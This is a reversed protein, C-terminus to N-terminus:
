KYRRRVLNIFQQAREVKTGQNWNYVTILNRMMYDKAQEFGGINNLQILANNFAHQDDSFLEKIMSIKDNLGISKGLDAIPTSGWKGANEPSTATEFLTFAENVNTTTAAAPPTNVTKVPPVTNVPTVPAPPPTVKQQIPAPPPTNVKPQTQSFNSKASNDLHKLSDPIKVMSPTNPVNSTKAPETFRDNFTKSKASDALRENISKGQNNSLADAVTKTSAAIRENVEKIKNEVQAVPQQVPTAVPEIPAVPQEVQVTPQVIEVPTQLPTPPTHVVNQQVPTPTPTTQVPTQVPTQVTPTPETVVTEQVIPPSPLPDASEGAVCAEYLQSVYAKMLDKEISSIKGDMNINKDLANIKQLIIQFQALNM